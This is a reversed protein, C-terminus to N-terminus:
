LDRKRMLLYSVSTFILIYGFAFAVKEPISVVSELNELSNLTDLSFQSNASLKTAMIGLFDPMPTLNSIIKVPLHNAVSHSLSLRIIPEILGFYLLYLVISLAINRILTIFLLALSLYGLIQVFLILVYKYGTFMAEGSTLVPTALFALVTVLIVVYFAILLSLILKAAFMQNRTFGDLLQRRYTGFLYDNGILIIFLLSLILNFWSALWAVTGWAYPQSLLINSEVGNFSLTAKNAVVLVLFYLLGHLTLLVWSTAYGFVKIIEAKFIRVM